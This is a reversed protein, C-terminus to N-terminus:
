TGEGGEGRRGEGGLDALHKALKGGQLREILRSTRSGRRARPTKTDREGGMGEGGRGEGLINDKM